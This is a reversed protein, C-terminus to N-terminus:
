STKSITIKYHRLSFAVSDQKQFSVTFSPFIKSIRIYSSHKIVLLQNIEEVFLLVTSKATICLLTIVLPPTWSVLSSSVSVLFDLAFSLGVSFLGKQPWPCSHELGFIYRPLLRRFFLDEKSWFKTFKGYFESTRWFFFFTKAGFMRLNEPFNQREGWFVFFKREM